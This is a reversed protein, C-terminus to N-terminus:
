LDPFISRTHNCSVGKGGPRGVQSGWHCAWGHQAATTGPAPDGPGPSTGPPLCCQGGREPGCRPEGAGSGPGADWETTPRHLHAGEGPGSGPMSAAESDRRGPHLLSPSNEHFTPAWPLGQSPTLWSRESSLIPNPQHPLAWCTPCFLSTPFQAPYLSCTSSPHHTNLNGAGPLLGRTTEILGM